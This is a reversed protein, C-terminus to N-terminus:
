PNILYQVPYPTNYMHKCIRQHKVQTM